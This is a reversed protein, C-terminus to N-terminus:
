SRITRITSNNHDHCYYHPKHLHNKKEINELDSKSDPNSEKDKVEVVLSQKSRCENTNHWPIKHFDCWKRTDNKM